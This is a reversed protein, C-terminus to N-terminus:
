STAVARMASGVHIWWALHLLMGRYETDTGRVADRYKRVFALAEGPSPLSDIRKRIFREQDSLSRFLERALPAAALNTGRASGHILKFAVIPPGAPSALFERTPPAESTADTWSGRSVSDLARAALDGIVIAVRPQLVEFQHRLITACSRAAMPRLSKLAEAEQPSRRSGSPVGHLLANTFYTRQIIADRYALSLPQMSVAARWLDFGHSASKDTRSNCVPCLIGTKEPTTGGPDQAIQIFLAPGSGSTHTVCSSGFAMPGVRAPNWPCASCASHRGVQADELLEGLATMM